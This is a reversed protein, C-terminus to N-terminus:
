TGAQLVHVLVTGSAAIAYLAEGPALDFAISEGAKLEYGSSTVGAPGLFVSVTAHRNTALLSAGYNTPATTATLLTASTTVSKQASTVAM